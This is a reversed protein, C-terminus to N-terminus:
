ERIVVNSISGLGNLHGKDLTMFLTLGDIKRGGRLRVTKESHDVMASLDSDNLARLEPDKNDSYRLELFDGVGEVELVLAQDKDLEGVRVLASDRYFDFTLPASESETNREVRMFDDLPM